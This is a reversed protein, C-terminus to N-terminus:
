AEVNGVEKELFDWTQDLTLGYKRMVFNFVGGCAGCGYQCCYLNASGYVM